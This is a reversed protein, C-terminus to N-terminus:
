TNWGGNSAEQPETGIGGFGYPDARVGTNGISGKSGLLQLLFNQMAPTATLGGLVSTTGPSVAGVATSGPPTFAGMDAYPRPGTSTGSQRSNTTSTGVSHQGKGFLNALNAATQIDQDQLQRSLLPAQTRADSIQNARNIDVPASLAAAQQGSLGFRAAQNAVAAKAGAASENINRAQNQLYGAPLDGPGSLRRQLLSNTMGVLPSFESTVFPNTTDDHNTTSSGFSSSTTTPPPQGNLYNLYKNQGQTYQALYKNYADASADQAKNQQHASLLGGGLAGAAGVGAAIVAPPM